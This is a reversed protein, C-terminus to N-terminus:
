HDRVINQPFAKINLKNTANKRLSFFSLFLSMAVSQLTPKVTSLKLVALPTVAASVLLPEGPGGEDAVRLLQGERHGPSGLRLHEGHLRVNSLVTINVIIRVRWLSVNRQYSSSSIIVVVNM